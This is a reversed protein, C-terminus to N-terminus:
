EPWAGAHVTEAVPLDEKCRNLGPACTLGHLAMLSAAASQTPLKDDHCCPPVWRKAYPDAGKIQNSPSSDVYTANPDVALLADRITYVFLRMYDDTFSQPDDRSDPFWRFSAEM